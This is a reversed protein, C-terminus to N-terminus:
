EFWDVSGASAVADVAPAPSAGPPPAGFGGGSAQQAIASLLFADAARSWV